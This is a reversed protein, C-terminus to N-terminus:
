RPRQDGLRMADFDPCNIADESLAISPHVPCKLTYHGTFFRCDACPIAHMQQARKMGDRFASAISWLTMLVLGWALVFCIPVLFPHLAHSLYRLTVWM